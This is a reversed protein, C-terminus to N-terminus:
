HASHPTPEEGTAKEIHTYIMPTGRAESMRRVGRIHELFTSRAIDAGRGFRKADQFEINGEIVTAALLMAVDFMVADDLQPYKVPERDSFDSAIRWMGHISGTVLSQLWASYEADSMTHNKM